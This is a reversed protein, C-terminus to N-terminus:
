SALLLYSIATADVVVADVWQAFRCTTSFSTFEFDRSFSIELGGSFRIWYGAAIDGCVAVRNATAMSSMYADSYIPRGWLKDPEAAVSSPVWVYNGVDDKAM